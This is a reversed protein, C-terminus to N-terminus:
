RSRELISVIEENARRLAEEPAMSGANAKSLYLGFTNEIENWVPTRPRPRARELSTLQAPYSRYKAILDEDKFVSRRTPPNGLFAAKRLQPKATVWLIFQAALETNKSAAPVALLWSGLEPTGARKAGPMPAFDVKGVVKSKQPNDMSSIWAPWNISMAATSQLLHASVEDANFGTYGPPAYKGLEIMFKLAEVAAPSAVDPRGEANFVEAGFSWYLPMFDTVAANGPAARLVYGFIKEAAAIKKAANLVDLWTAPAGLGNKEFLDRRYFFLQSNGVFPLAYYTGSAYPHRCVDLCSKIFDPDPAGGLFPDLATLNGRQVLRPFWPDDMMIVDYAGTRSQLDLMEKEFLNSYPLEVLQVEVRNLEGWERALAKLADGEVGANLAIALSGGSNGSCGALCLVIALVLASARM